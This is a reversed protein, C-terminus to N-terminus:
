QYIGLKRKKGDILICLHDAAVRLIKAGGPLLDGAKLTEPAKKGFAILVYQDSGRRAVGVFRWEQDEPNQAAAAAAVKTGWLNKQVIVALAKQPDARWASPLVWAQPADTPPQPVPAHPVSRAMIWTLLGLMVAALILLRSKSWDPM